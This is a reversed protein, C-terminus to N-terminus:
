WAVPLAALGRFMRGTTFQLDDAAVALRLMPFHRTLAEIAIRLELRALHAGLCYHVGYGFALHQFEDRDLRYTDAATFVAPDRNAAGIAPLVAEGKQVAVGCIEVDETAIRILGGSVALPNLRLLEEVAHSIRDPDEVLDAYLRPHRLLHVVSLTLQNATTHFGATLLTRGLAVLEQSSLSEADDHATILASLLDDDPQARKAGILAELYTNLEARARQIEEVGHATLSLVTDALEKFRERDPVPVGLLDSIVWMPLPFALGAVLDAPPGAAALAGLTEDTFATIRPALDQIRRTTFARSVLKRLRTHGPPDMALLSSPDPPVPQLRPAGPETAAARSLRPDAFAARNAAYGTVLWALDHSPLRVRVLPGQERLRAFDPPPEWPNPTRLPFDIVEDNVDM